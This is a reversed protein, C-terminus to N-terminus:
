VKSSRDVVLFIVFFDTSFIVFREKIMSSVLLIRSFLFFHLSFVTLNCLLRFHLCGWFTLDVLDFFASFYILLIMYVYDLSMKSFKKLLFVTSASFIILLYLVPDFTHAPSIPSVPETRQVFM